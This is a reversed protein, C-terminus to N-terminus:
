IVLGDCHCEERPDGRAAVEHIVLDVEGLEVRGARLDEDAARLGTGRGSRTREPHTDCCRGACRRGSRTRIVRHRCKGRGARTWGWWLMWRSGM